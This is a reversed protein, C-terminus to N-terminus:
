VCGVVSAKAAVHTQSQRLKRMLDQQLARYGEDDLYNARQREFPPLEIFLAEMSHIM